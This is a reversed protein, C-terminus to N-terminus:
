ATVAPPARLLFISIIRGSNNSIESFGNLESYEINNSASPSFSPEYGTIGCVPCLLDNQSIHQDEVHYLCDMSEIHYHTMSFILGTALVAISLLSIYSNLKKM